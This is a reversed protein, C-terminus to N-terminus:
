GPLVLKFFILNAKLICTGILGLIMCLVYTNNLIHFDTRQWVRKGISRSKTLFTTAYEDKRICEIVLCLQSNLSSIVEKLM